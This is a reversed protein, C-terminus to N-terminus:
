VAEQENEKEGEQAQVRNMEERNQQMADAIRELTQMSALLRDMNARGKVEVKDLTAIVKRILEEM